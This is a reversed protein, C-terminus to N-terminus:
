ILKQLRVTVATSGASTRSIVLNTGDFKFAVTVGFGAPAISVTDASIQTVTGCNALAQIGVHINVGQQIGIGLIFTAAHNSADSIFVAYVQGVAAGAVLTQFSTTITLAANTYRGAKQVNDLTAKKIADSAASDMLNVQDAAVPTSKTSYTNAIAM